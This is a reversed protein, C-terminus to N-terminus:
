SSFALQPDTNCGQVALIAAAANLTLTVYAECLSRQSGASRLLVTLSVTLGRVQM